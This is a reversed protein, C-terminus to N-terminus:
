CRGKRKVLKKDMSDNFEDTTMVPCSTLWSLVDTKKFLIRSGQKFFPITRHSTKQYLTSISYGTLKAATEIGFVEPLMEDISKVKSMQTLLSKFDSVSLAAIPTQDNYNM